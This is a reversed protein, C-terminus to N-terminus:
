LRLFQSSFAFEHMYFSVIACFHICYHFSIFLLRMEEICDDDNDDNGGRNTRVTGAVFSLALVNIM